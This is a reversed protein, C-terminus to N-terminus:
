TRLEAPSPRKAPSNDLFARVTSAIMEPVLAFLGHGLGPWEAFTCHPVLAQAARTQEFLDDHPNLLLLPQGLAALDGAIDHRYVARYGEYQGPGSRLNECLSAQCWELSARPDTLGRV